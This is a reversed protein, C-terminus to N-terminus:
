FRYDFTMRGKFIDRINGDFHPLHQIRVAPSETYLEIIYTPYLSFDFSHNSLGYIYQMQVGINANAPLAFAANATLTIQGNAYNYGSITGFATNNPAITTSSLASTATGAKSIAYETKGDKSFIYVNGAGDDLAYVFPSLGISANIATSLLTGTTAVTGDTSTISVTVGQVTISVTASVAAATIALVTYPEVLYLVDGPIFVYPVTVTIINTSTAINTLLKARPLFRMNSSIDLGVFLGADVAITGSSNM